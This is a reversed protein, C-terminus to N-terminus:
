KYKRSKSKRSKKSKRTKKSRRSKRTRKGGIPNENVNIGLEDKMYNIITQDTHNSRGVYEASRDEGPIIDWEPIIIGNNTTLRWLGNNGEPLNPNDYKQLYVTYNNGNVTINYEDGEKLSM